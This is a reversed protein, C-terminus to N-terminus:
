DQLIKSWTEAKFGVMGFDPGLLFPRKILKGHQSLLKIAEAETLGAKLREAMGLTRYQEGSVNFLSKLEKSQDKSQDKSQSKLHNLMQKLESVTPPHEVIAIREFGLNNDKLFKAAKQCTTCAKYEYFKLVSAM